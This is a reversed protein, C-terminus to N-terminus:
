AAKRSPFAGKILQDLEADVVQLAQTLRGSLATPSRSMATLAPRFVRAELRAYLRALKWGYPTLYCRQTGRIRRKKRGARSEIKVQNGFGANFRQAITLSTGGSGPLIKWKRSPKPELSKLLAPLPRFPFRGLM